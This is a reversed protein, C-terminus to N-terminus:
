IRQIAYNVMIIWRRANDEQGEKPILPTTYHWFPLRYVGITGNVPKGGRIDNLFHGNQLVLFQQDVGATTFTLHVDVYETPETINTWGAALPWKVDNHSSLYDYPGYCVVLVGSKSDQSLKYGTVSEAFQKLSASQCFNLLNSKKFFVEQSEDLEQDFGQFMQFHRATYPSSRYDQDVDFHSNNPLKQEIRNNKMIPWYHELCELLNPQKIIGSFSQYPTQLSGKIFQQYPNKCVFGGLDLDAFKSPFKM